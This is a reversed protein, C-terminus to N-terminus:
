VPERGGPTSRAGLLLALGFLCLMGHEHHLTTNFVGGVFVVSWGAVGSAWALADVDAMGSRPRRRWLLWAWAIGLGLLLLEGLAGREALTNFYVNHAHNSFLYSEPEFVEGRATVWAEVQAPSVASFNAVGLGLLPRQRWYEIATRALRGRASTVDNDRVNDLTKQLLSSGNKEQAVMWVLNQAAFAVLAAMVLSGAAVMAFRRGQMLLCPLAIVVVGFLYAVFAGRSAFAVVGGFCALAAAVALWRGRASLGRAYVSLGCALMGAGAGYLASHNVHGVSNLQLWIRKADLALVAYGHVVGILTAGVACAILGISQRATVRTRALTWGLLVYSAIDGLDKWVRPYPASSVVSLLPLLLLAAFLADWARSSLGFNHQRLSGALWTLVYAALFVNKPAEVLPLAILFCGLLIYEAKGLLRARSASPLM